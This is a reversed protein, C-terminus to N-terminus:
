LKPLKTNSGNYNGNLAFYGFASNDQSSYGALKLKGLAQDGARTTRTDPTAFNKANLDQDATFLHVSDIVDILNGRVDRPSIEQNSNDALELSIKQVLSQKDLIL